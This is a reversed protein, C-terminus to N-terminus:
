AADRVELRDKLWAMANAPSWGEAEADAIDWGEARWPEPEVIRTEAGVGALLELVGPIRKGRQDVRGLFAARGPEDADPICVVKRGRLPTFDVHPHAKSGGPWTTVVAVPFLRQGADATKEGEVLLVTAGAHAALLELRYFPTPRAFPVICWRREGASNQCWTVTPTFKRGGAPVIRLM